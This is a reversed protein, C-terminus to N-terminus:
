APLVEPDPSPPETRMARLGKRRTGAVTQPGDDMTVHSTWDGPRTVTV